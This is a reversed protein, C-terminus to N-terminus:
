GTSEIVLKEFEALDVQIQGLAEEEEKYVRKELVDLRNVYSERANRASMERAIPYLYRAPLRKDTKMVHVELLHNEFEVAGRLNSLPHARILPPM